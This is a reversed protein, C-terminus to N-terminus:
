GAAERHRGISASLADFVESDRLDFGEADAPVAGAVAGACREAHIEAGAQAFAMQGSLPMRRFEAYGTRVGALLLARAEDVMWRPVTPTTM